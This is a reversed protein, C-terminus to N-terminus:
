AALDIIQDSAKEALSQWDDVKRMTIQGSALLAWFLMAATEASPLVTQTKIRRKFEEHLREIANSTRISKWQSKPFRTFTFLKDGAEEVSDAVARCKLRWKRIFAKRKTEIEQKTGAYIMGQLRAAAGVVRMKHAIQRIQKRPFLPDKAKVLKSASPRTRGRRASAPPKKLKAHKAKIEASSM